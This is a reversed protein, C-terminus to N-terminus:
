AVRLTMIVDDIMQGDMRFRDVLTGVESFGLKEYLARAAANHAFVRLDIWSLTDTGRTFEMATEMLRRGLGKGRYPREIGIGLECRHLGTRLADGTLDVHGVIDGQDTVAVFWRQWGPETLPRYIADIDLGTPGGEDGPAFPMFHHDGRGSEARHRKSHALFRPLDDPTMPRISESTGPIGREEIGTL